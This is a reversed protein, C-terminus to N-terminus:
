LRRARAQELEAQHKLMVSEPISGTPISPDVGSTAPEKQLNSSDGPSAPFVPVAPAEAVPEEVEVQADFFQDDSGSEGQLAAEDVVAEWNFDPNQEEEHVEESQVLAAEEDDRRRNEGSGLWWVRNERKR